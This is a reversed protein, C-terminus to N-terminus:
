PIVIAEEEEQTIRGGTSAVSSMAHEEPVEPLIGEKETETKQTIRQGYPLKQVIDVLEAQSPPPVVNERFRRAGVADPHAPPHGEAPDLPYPISVLLKQKSPLLRSPALQGPIKVCRVTDDSYQDAEINFDEAKIDKPQPPAPMIPTPHAKQIASDPDLSHSLAFKILPQPHKPLPTKRTLHSSSDRPDPGGASPPLHSSEMGRTALMHQAIVNTDRLSHFQEILDQDQSEDLDSEIEGFLDTASSLLRSIVSCKYQLISSHHILFSPVYHHLGNWVVVINFSSPDYLHDGPMLHIIHGSTTSLVRESFTKPQKGPAM